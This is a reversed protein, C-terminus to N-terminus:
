KLIEELKKDIAALDVSQKPVMIETDEGGVTDLDKQDSDTEATRRISARGSESHAPRGASLAPESLSHARSKSAPSVEVLLFRIVPKLQQIQDRIIKINEPVVSFQVSGFYASVTKQIPYSLEKLALPEQHIIPTPMSEIIAIIDRATQEHEGEKILFGLEYIRPSKEGM